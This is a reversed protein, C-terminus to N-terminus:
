ETMWSFEARRLVGDGIADVEPTGVTVTLFGGKRPAALGLDDALLLSWGKGVQDGTHSADVAYTASDVIASDRDFLAAQLTLTGMRVAVPESGVHRLWAALPSGDVDLEIAAIPSGALDERLTLMLQVLEDFGPPADHPDFRVDRLGDATLQERTGGAPLAQGAPDPAAHADAERASALARELAQRERPSLDRAFRGVRHGSTQWSSAHHGDDIEIGQWQSPAGPSARTLRVTM